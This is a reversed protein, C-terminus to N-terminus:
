PAIFELGEHDSSYQIINVKARYVKKHTFTQWKQPDKNVISQRSAHIKQKQPLHDKKSNKMELRTERKHAWWGALRYLYLFMHYDRTM